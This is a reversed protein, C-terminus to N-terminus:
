FKLALWNIQVFPLQTTWGIKADGRLPGDPRQPAKKQVWLIDTVSISCGLIDTVPCPYRHRTVPYRHIDFAAPYLNGIQLM